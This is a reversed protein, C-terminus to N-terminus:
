LQVFFHFCKYPISWFDLPFNCFDSLINFIYYFVIVNLFQFKANIGQKSKNSHKFLNKTKNIGLKYGININGTSKKFDATFNRSKKRWTSTIWLPFPSDSSRSTPQLCTSFSRFTTSPRMDLHSVMEEFSILRTVSSISLPVVENVCGCSSLLSYTERKGKQFDSM